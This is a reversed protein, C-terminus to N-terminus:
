KCARWNDGYHCDVTLPVSWDEDFIAKTYESVSEMISKVDHIILDKKDGRCDLILSDHVECIMVCDESKDKLYDFVKGVVLAVLDAALGQIPYNQLEPMKWYSFIKHNKTMVAYDKFVYRKNFLSTYVAKKHYEGQVNSFTGTNKDRIKLLENTIDATTELEMLMNNYFMPVEPYRLDEKKFVATVVELPIEHRAAITQPAAGYAKEFSIPKALNKRKDCYEPDKEVHVKNYVQKYPEDIAYSLRLCHFDVGEAIDKMMRKSNTLCAQVCIELQSFDFEILVGDKFRSNFMGMVEKPINQGNPKSSSLRGTATVTTNFEPHICGDPHVKLLLGKTEDESYYYTGLIKIVKRYERLLNVVPNSRPLEALTADDVKNKGTSTLSVSKFGIGPLQLIYEEKKTKEQGARLGTKYVEGLGVQRTAKLGGGFLLLSVHNTSSPNFPTHSPWWEPVSNILEIKLQEVRDLCETRSAEAAELDVHLGNYEMETVALLHKMYTRILPLMGLSKALKLQALFVTSTNLTDWKAYDVLAESDIENVPIGQKIQGSVWDDKLNGGYKESLTNLDKKVDPDQATLLYEALMTCWVEGGNRIFERLSPNDWLYLLDFKFNQGVLLKYKNLPLKVDRPIEVADYICSARKGDSLAVATIVNRKDLANIERGFSKNATVELDLVLYKM